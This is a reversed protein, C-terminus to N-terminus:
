YRPWDDLDQTQDVPDSESDVDEDEGEVCCDEYILVM